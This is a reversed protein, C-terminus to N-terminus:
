PEVSLAERARRIPEYLAEGDPDERLRLRGIPGAATVFEELAERYRDRESEAACLAAVIERRPCGLPAPDCACWPGATAFGTRGVTPREGRASGGPTASSPTPKSPSAM